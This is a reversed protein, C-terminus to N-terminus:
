KMYKEIKDCADKYGFAFEAHYGALNARMIFEKQESSCAGGERKLEIFLGHFGNRPAFILLDPCGARYGMMKMKKGTGVSVRMGGASATFLINLYAARLWNVVAVQIQFEESRM